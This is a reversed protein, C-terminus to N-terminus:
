SRTTLQRMEDHPFTYGQRGLLIRHLVAQHKGEAIIETFGNDYFRHCRKCLAYLAPHPNRTDNPWKHAADVTGRPLHGVFHNERGKSSARKSPLFHYFSVLPRLGSRDRTQLARINEDGNRGRGAPNFIAVVLICSSKNTTSALRSLLLIM